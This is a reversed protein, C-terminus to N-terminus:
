KKSEDNEKETKDSQDNEKETKDSEDDNEGDGDYESSKLAFNLFVQELSTQSYSYDYFLDEERCSEMIEFVKSINSSNCKVEYKVRQHSKDEREYESEGFLQKGVVVEEHFKEIDKTHVDMIYTNGYKMKLHEPTGICRIKGEIMIAIRNCLLEAEEMSHTSMITSSKNTQLSSKIIDWVYRRTSPDMGASPEDMIIKTSSCCLAILINLKRRTGGSLEYPMKNRHETLRCYSIFQKAIKKAEKKSYGRLYLFMEIHEFLTFENWLTDEQPCYGLTIENGKRETTNKGDYTIKGLTQPFTFSTTNLLSSKGSGNPGLIGFCECTDVGLSVNEFPTMVVRRSGMTSMHFEGYKPNKRNMADLLEQRSTFEIDDYEKALKVIKIPIKNEESDDMVRKYENLIDEDGEQLEKDFRENIEDTTKFVNRSPNYRRKTQLVLLFTYIAIAVLAGLFCSPVQRNLALIDLISIKKRYINYEVGINILSKLVRVLGYNPIFSSVIFVLAATYYILDNGKAAEVELGSTNAELIVGIPPVINFLYFITLASSESSIINSLCYQFILCAIACVFFYVALVIISSVHFLPTFKCIVFTMLILICTILFVFHDTILVSIWYSKNSIGNLQLQKLLNQSRERIVNTGYYSLPFATCLVIVLTFFTTSLSTSYVNFKTDEITKFLYVNTKITDNVNSSSLISNSLIDVTVPLSFLMSSNYNINFYHMNENVVGSFSSVYYPESKISQYIKEMEVETYLDLSSDSNSLKPLEQQILQPTLTDNISPSNQIDYNWKQNKYISSSIPTKDYLEYFSFLSSKYQDEIGNFQDRFTPLFVCLATVPVLIGLFVYTKQRIYVRIRYSGLRLATKLTGPRKVNKNQPLEIAKNQDSAKGNRKEEIEKELNIFLEELLPANLSFNVLLKNKEKELDRLLTSLKNSDDIPLKWTYTNPSSSNSYEIETKDVFNFADSIHQKILKDIKEFHHTEVELSYKMKFHNKLYISSGLCRITGRNLILKRDAIIDAEDMYHTTIFIVRDKKVKLLLNWIKRRSLPDLGTTPEDLFVYKPNGILALSISLKRKQGGSLKQVEYDKKKELDIDKLWKDIDEDDCEKIGSYLKFHDAVTFNNILVNSQLCIGLQSRIEKKNKSISLGHYLTEGSDPTIIGVMNQILTSKGAGNHGLIAFIEDKYVNFSIDNNAAFIKKSKENQDDRDFIINNKFKFVKFINKVQVFCENGTPDEQIDSSYDEREFKAKNFKSLSVSRFDLKRLYELVIPLISSVIANIILGIFYKGYDSDFMNSFEIYHGLDDEHCIEESAMSIGIPSVIYSVIKEISEKGETKLSFVYKSTIVISTIFLCTFVLVTRSKKILISVIAAINFMSIVYFIYTLIFLIPNIAGIINSPDFALFIAFIILSIPFYIIEWTFWLYHPKVGITILGEKIGSEKEEILRNNIHFFQGICLFLVYPALGSFKREESPLTERNESAIHFHDADNIVLGKAMGKTKLQIIANNVATQTIIFLSSSKDYEDRKTYITDSKTDVESRKRKAYYQNDFGCFEFDKIRITYDTYDDNFIVSCLISDDKDKQVFEELEKENEFITYNRIYYNEFYPNDTIYSVFAEGNVETQNNPLVYAITYFDSYGSVMAMGTRASSSIGDSPAGAFVNKQYNGDRISLSGVVLFTFFIEFACPFISTRQKFIKFNKWLITKFQKSFFM